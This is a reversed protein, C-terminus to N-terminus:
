QPEVRDEETRGPLDHPLIQFLGHGKGEVENGICKKMIIGFNMAALQSLM